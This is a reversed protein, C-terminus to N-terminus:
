SGEIMDRFEFVKNEQWDMINCYKPVYVDKSPELFTMQQEKALEKYYPVTYDMGDMQWINWSIIEAIYEQISENPKHSFRNEFYEIFTLFINKRALLLNDGQLEFGYISQFAIVAWEVWESETQTNENVIRLKRDLFGIREQIPINEGTVTDYRSVLYPAEGCTIELRNAGVYEQWTSNGDFLIKDETSKWHKGSSSNFVNERNFWAHDILNNQENCMWSPTFVEAKEKIREQQRIHEKNVRPIIKDNHILLIEKEPYYDNGFGIYNDTAWVINRNVTRDKLLIDLMRNNIDNTLVDSNQLVSDTQM